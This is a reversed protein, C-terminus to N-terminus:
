RGCNTEYTGSQKQPAVARRLDGLLDSGDVSARAWEILRNLSRLPNQAVHETIFGYADRDPKFIPLQRTATSSSMVQLYDSNSAAASIRLTRKLQLAMTRVGLNDKLEVIVDDMPQDAAQQVAVSVVVGSVGAAHGELLLAALYYAVVLDEYTFGTGGTLETSTSQSEKDAAM